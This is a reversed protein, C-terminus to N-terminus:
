GCVGGLDALLDPAPRSGAPRASARAMEAPGPARAAAEAARLLAPEGLDGTLVYRLSALTGAAQMLGAVPDRRLAVAILAAVVEPTEAVVGRDVLVTGGPLAAVPAGLDLVRVDPPAAPAVRAAIADLARQGAPEACAAGRAEILAILMRDGYEQAREPPLMRAAQERVLGPGWVAAGVMAAIAATWAAAALRRRPPSAPPPLRNARSVAAIAEVMDRDEISLTEAGDETMAFVTAPGDRGIARVGALAWHGLPADDIDRLVLTTTGFGVIVERMAAGPEERWLGLAELRVYRELATM